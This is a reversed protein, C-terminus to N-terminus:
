SSHDAISSVIDSADLEARELKEHPIAHEFDPRDAHPCKCSTLRLEYVCITRLADRTPIQANSSPFSTRWRSRTACLCRNFRRYQLAQQKLSVVDRVDGRM